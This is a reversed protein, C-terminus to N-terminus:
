AFPKFYCCELFFEGAINNHLALRVANLQHLVESSLVPVVSMGVLPPNLDVQCGRTYM